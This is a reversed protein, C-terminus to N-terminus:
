CEGDQWQGAYLRCLYFLTYISLLALMKKESNILTFNYKKFCHIRWVTIVVM